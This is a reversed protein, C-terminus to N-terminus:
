LSKKMDILKNTIDDLIEIMNPEIKIDEKLLEEKIQKSKMLRQHKASKKHSSFYTPNYSKQCLLCERRQM